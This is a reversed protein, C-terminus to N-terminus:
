RLRQDETMVEYCLTKSERPKLPPTRLPVLAGDIRLQPPSGTTIHLDSAGREVMLRLLQRLTLRPAEQPAAM